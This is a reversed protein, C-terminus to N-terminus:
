KMGKSSKYLIRIDANNFFDDWTIDKKIQLEMKLKLKEKFDGM